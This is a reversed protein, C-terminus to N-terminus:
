KIDFNWNGKLGTEDLVKNSGVSAGMMGRLGSAFAEMTMNRCMYHITMGPGLNIMTAAGNSTQTVIRIGGESPAGSSTQPRCGTEETGDSEKLLPKKGVILAYTPLPKTEKHVALKFRDELLSQLMLKQTEPTSDAPVQALVDFRDMELWSPGGLVKDPDFSYAIRILDVMTANKVQYRGGRVPGTRIFPNAIKASVHVDAIEFRPPTEPSQSFAVWGAGNMLITGVIARKV